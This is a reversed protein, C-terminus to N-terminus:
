GGEGAGKDRGMALGRRREIGQARIVWVLAWVPGWALSLRVSRLALDLPALAAAPDEATTLLWLIAAGILVLDAAVALMIAALRGQSNGIARGFPWPLLVALGMLVAIPLLGNWFGFAAPLTM